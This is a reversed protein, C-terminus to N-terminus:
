NWYWKGSRGRHPIKIIESLFIGGTGLIRRGDELQRNLRETEIKLLEIGDETVLYAKRGKEDTTYSVVGDAAMRGTITYLTGTGLVVRGETLNKVYQMVAYGHRPKTLALLTYYTTETMPIYKKKLNKEM